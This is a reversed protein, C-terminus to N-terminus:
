PPSVTEGVTGSDGNGIVRKLYERSTPFCSPSVVTNTDYTDFWLERVGSGMLILILLKKHNEAGNLPNELNARLNLESRNPDVRGVLV